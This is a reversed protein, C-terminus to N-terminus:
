SNTSNPVVVITDNTNLSAQTGANWGSASGVSVTQATVSTPTNATFENVAKITIPTEAITPPAGITINLIGGSVSATTASGAATVNPVIVDNTTLSAASGDTVTVKSTDTPTVTLTPLTNATFSSVETITDTSSKLAYSGEDGLLEWTIGNWVYEQQEWLVVDGAELDTRVNGGVTPSQTGGDTIATTSRGIFHMAGTLGDLGATKSDVYSKTAANVDQGDIKTIINNTTEIKVGRESRWYEHATGNESIQEYTFAIIENAQCVCNGTVPVALVSGVALTVNETASNGNVFKVHVTIGNMKTDFDPLTVVKDTTAAATNCTGYLTSGILIQEQDSAGIQVKGIYSSM